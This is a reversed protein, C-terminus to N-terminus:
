PRCRYRPGRYVGLCVVGGCVGMVRVRDGEETTSTLSALIPVFPALKVLPPLSPRVSWLTFLLQVGIALVKINTSERMAKLLPELVGAAAVVADRGAVSGETVNCLAEIAETRVDDDPSSVLQVLPPVASADVVAAAHRLALRSLAVAAAVSELEERGSLQEVLVPVVVVDVAKQEITAAMHDISLLRLLQYMARSWLQQDSASATLHCIDTM